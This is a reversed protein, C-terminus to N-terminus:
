PAYSYGTPSNPDAVMKRGSKGILPVSPVDGAPVASGGGLGAIPPLVAARIAHFRGDKEFAELRRMLQDPDQYESVVHPGFLENVMQLNRSGGGAANLLDTKMQGIHGFWQAVAPDAQGFIGGPNLTPSYLRWQNLLWGGGNAKYMPAVKAYDERLGKAEDEASDVARLQDRSKQDLTGRGMIKKSLEEGTNRDMLHQVIVKAGTADDTEEKYVPVPRNANMAAASVPAAGADGFKPLGDPGYGMFTKVRGDAEFHQFPTAAPKTSDAGFRQYEPLEILEPHANLNAARTFLDLRKEAPLNTDMASSRIQDALASAQVGQDRRKVIQEMPIGQNLMDQENQPLKGVATQQNTLEKLKGLLMQRQLLQQQQQQQAQQAAYDSANQGQEVGQFVSAFPAADQFFGM